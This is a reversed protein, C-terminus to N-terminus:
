MHLTVLAASAAPLRVYLSGGTPSLRENQVPSWSGDAAVSVGGLTTGTKSELSPAQLRAIAAQRVPLSDGDIVVTGDNGSEKNILTLVLENAARKVAYAKINRGSADFACDLIRGGASLAFAHMGYYEPAAWYHGTENDRIPSYSSIFGLQNVGTELNVGACGACALTFMFDLVWLAAAFTDSVGPKGGGYFSNTECVRYPVRSSDSAARLQRLIAALRPDDRLLEDITATPKMAGDRYYHATLLCVHRGEDTAFKSVWDLAGAADPGAFTVGPIAQRLADRYSRFEALYESYSYGAARHRHPFLDPENGIEFALLHDGAAAAVANAEAISNEQNRSGLNLTWILKWGTARLFSGLDRLVADNVISGMKGEPSSLPRVHASYSAYDATNGGVRIVGHPGLSQVLQVYVRNEASLLGPRAVSSTEYGLGLFDSPIRAGDHSLDVRLHLKRDTLHRAVFSPQAMWAPIASVAAALFNRRNIKSVPLLM